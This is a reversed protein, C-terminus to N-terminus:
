SDSEFLADPPPPPLTSPQPHSVKQHRKWKPFAGYKVRGGNYLVVLGHDALEDLWGALRKPTLSDNPYVYGAIATHSALFRGHDDASSILGVMLLRAEFTLQSVKDDGWFSPKISRIRAM